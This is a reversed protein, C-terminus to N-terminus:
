PSGDTHLILSKMRKAEAYSPPYGTRERMTERVTVVEFEFECRATLTSMVVSNALPAALVNQV